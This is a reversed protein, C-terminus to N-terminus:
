QGVEEREKRGEEREENEGEEKLRKREKFGEKKAENERGKKGEERQVGGWVCM